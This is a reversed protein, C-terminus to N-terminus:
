VGMEFEPGTENTLVISLVEYSFAFIMVEKRFKDLLFFM